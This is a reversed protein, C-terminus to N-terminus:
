DSLRFSRGPMLKTKRRSCPIAVRRLPIRNLTKAHNTAGSTISIEFFSHATGRLHIVPTCERTSTHHRGLDKFFAIMQGATRAITKRDAAQMWATSGQDVLGKWGSTKSGLKPPLTM